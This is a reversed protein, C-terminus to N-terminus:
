MRRHDDITRREITEHCDSRSKRLRRHIDRDGRQAVKRSWRHTGRARRAVEEVLSDASPADQESATPTSQWVKCM